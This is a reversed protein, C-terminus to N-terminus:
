NGLNVSVVRRESFSRLEFILTFFEQGLEERTDLSIQQVQGNRGRPPSPRRAFNDMLLQPRYPLNGKNPPIVVGINLSNLPNVVGALPTIVNGFPRVNDGNPPPIMPRQNEVNPLHINQNAKGDKNGIASNQVPGSQHVINGLGVLNPNNKNM